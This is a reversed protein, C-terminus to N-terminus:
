PASTRYTVSGGLIAAAHVNGVPMNSIGINDGCEQFTVGSADKIQALFQSYGTSHAVFSVPGVTGIYGQGPGTIPAFPLGTIV